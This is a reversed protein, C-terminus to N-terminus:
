TRFFKQQLTQFYVQSHRQGGLASRFRLKRYVFLHRRANCEPYILMDAVFKSHNYPFRVAFSKKLFYIRFFNHVASNLYQALSQLSWFQSIYRLQLVNLRTKLKGYMQRCNKGCVQLCIHLFNFRSQVSKLLAIDRSIPSYLRKDLIKVKSNMYQGSNM